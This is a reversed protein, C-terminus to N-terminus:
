KNGYQKVKDIVGDFDTDQEYKSIRMGDLM